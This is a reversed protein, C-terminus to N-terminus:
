LDVSKNELLSVELVADFHGTMQETVNMLPTFATFGRASHCTTDFSSQSVIRRVNRQAPELSPILPTHLNPPKSPQPYAPAASSIQTQSLVLGQAHLASTCNFLLRVSNGARLACSALVTFRHGLPSFSSRWLAPESSADLLLENFTTLIKDAGRLPLTTDELPALSPYPKGTKQCEYRRAEDRVLTTFSTMTSRLSCRLLNLTDVLQALALARASVPFVVNGVVLHVFLGVLTQKVRDALASATDIRTSSGM